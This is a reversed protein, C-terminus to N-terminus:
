DTLTSVKQICGELMAAFDDNTQEKIIFKRYESKKLHGNDWVVMSAVVESGQTHSIDFCEVRFGATRNEEHLPLNLAEQWAAKM